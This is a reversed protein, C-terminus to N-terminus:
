SADTQFGKRLLDIKNLFNYYDTDEKANLPLPLVADYMQCLNVGDHWPADGAHYFCLQRDGIM